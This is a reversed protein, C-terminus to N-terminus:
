KEEPKELKYRQIDTYIPGEPRLESKKFIFEKVEFKIKKIKMGQIYEKFINM